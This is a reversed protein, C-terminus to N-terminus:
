FQTPSDMGRLSSGRKSLRWNEVAVQSLGMGPHAGLMMPLLGKQQSPAVSQLCEQPVVGSEAGAGSRMREVHAWGDDYRNVVRVQEGTQIPLEDPLSPVFTRVVTVLTGVASPTPTATLSSTTSNTLSGRNVVTLPRISSPAFRTASVLTNGTFMPVDIGVPSPAYLSGAIDSTVSIPPPSPLRPPAYGTPHLPPPPGPMAFTAPSAGPKAFTMPSSSLTQFTVHSPLPQAGQKEDIDINEFEGGDGGELVEDSSHNSPSPSASRGSTSQPMPPNWTVRRSNRKIVQRKRIFIFAGVCSLLILFTIGVGLLASHVGKNNSSSTDAAATGTASSTALTVSPMTTVVPTSTTLAASTSSSLPTDTPMVLPAVDTSTDTSSTLSTQASGDSVVSDTPLLTPDTTTTPDAFATASYQAAQSSLLQALADNGSSGGTGTSDTGGNNTSQGNDLQRPKNVVHMRRRRLTGNPGNM